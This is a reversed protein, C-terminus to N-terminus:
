WATASLRRNAAGPFPAARSSEILALFLINPSMTKIAASANVMKAAFRSSSRRAGSRLSTSMKSSFAL